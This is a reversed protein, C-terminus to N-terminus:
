VTDPGIFRYKAVAAVDVGVDHVDGNRKLNHGRPAYPEGIREIHSTYLRRMSLNRM